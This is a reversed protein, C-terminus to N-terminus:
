AAASKTRPQPAAVPPPAGAQPDVSWVDARVSTEQENLRQDAPSDYVVLWDDGWAVLGEPHDVAGRYPLEVVHVLDTEPHVMSTRCRVADTWRLVHAPGDGAMVPGTLM